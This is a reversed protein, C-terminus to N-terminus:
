MKIIQAALGHAQELIVACQGELATLLFLESKKSAMEWVNRLEKLRIELFALALATAWVQDVVEEVAAAAAGPAAPKNSKLFSLPTKLCEAFADNLKWSGNFEQLVIIKQLQQHPTPKQHGREARYEGGSDGGSCPVPRTGQCEDPPPPPPPPPHNNSHEISPMPTSQTATTHSEPTLASLHSIVVAAAPLPLPLPLPLPSEAKILAPTIPVEFITSVGEQTTGMKKQSSTSPGILESTDGAKKIFPHVLLDSASPRHVADMSLCQSVFHQFESSWQDPEQLSPMGKTQILFLARIPDLDVYPPRGEAMEMCLIGLSWIDAKADKVGQIVEPSVWWAFRPPHTLEGLKALKVQGNLSFFINDSFINGHIFNRAHLWELGKLAEQCITAIQSETLRAAPLNDLLNRLNGGDLHETVIRLTGNEIYSIRIIFYSV